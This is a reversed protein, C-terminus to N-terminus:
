FCVYPEIFEEIVEESIVVFFLVKFSDLELIVLVYCSRSGM